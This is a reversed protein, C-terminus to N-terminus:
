VWCGTPFGPRAAVRGILLHLRSPDGRARDGREVVLVESDGSILSTAQAHEALAVALAVLYGDNQTGGRPKGAKWRPDEIHEALLTM